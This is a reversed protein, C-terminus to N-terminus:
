KFFQISSPYKWIEGNSAKIAAIIPFVIGLIAVAFLLPIGILLLSLLGTIVLYILESIIWNAANKGHQDIEPLDTKKIQWIVIPVILGLLPAPAHGLLTSLHLLMAWLRTDKDRNGSYSQGHAAPPSDILRKKASSFEEESLSGTRRLEELRALDDSLSV